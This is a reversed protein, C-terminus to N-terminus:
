PRGPPVQAWPPPPWLVSGYHLSGVLVDSEVEIRRGRWNEESLGSSAGGAIPGRRGSVDRQTYGGEATSASPIVQGTEHLASAPRDPMRIFEYKVVPEIVELPGAGRRRASGSRDPLSSSINANYFRYAGASRPTPQAADIPTVGSTKSRRHPGM